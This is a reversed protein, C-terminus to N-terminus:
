PAHRAPPLSSGRCWSPAPPWPQSGVCRSLLLCAGGGVPRPIRAGTNPYDRLYDCTMSHQQWGASRLPGTTRLLHGTLRRLLAVALRAAVTAANEGINLERGIEVYSLQAGARLAILERDRASLKRMAGLVATLESKAVAEHEPDAPAHLRRVLAALLLRDRRQRRLHHNVCNGAIRLLWSKTSESAPRTRDYAAFAQAMSQAAVEEALGRDLLRSLCYRHVLRGYRLYVSEFSALEPDVAAPAVGEVLSDPESM